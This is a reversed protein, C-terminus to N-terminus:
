VVGIQISGKAKNCRFAGATDIIFVGKWENKLDIFTLGMM